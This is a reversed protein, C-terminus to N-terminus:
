ILQLPVKLITKELVAIELSSEVSIELGRFLESVNFDWLPYIQEEIVEDFIEQKSSLLLVVFHSDFSEFCPLYIITLHNSVIINEPFIIQRLNKLIDPNSNRNKEDEVFWSQLDPIPVDNFLSPDELCVKRYRLAQVQQAISVNLATADVCLRTLQELREPTVYLPLESGFIDSLSELSERNMSLFYDIQRKHLDPTRVPLRVRRLCQHIEDEAMSSFTRADLFRDIIVRNGRHEELDKCEVHGHLNLLMVDMPVSSESNGVKVSMNARPVTFLQWTESAVAVVGKSSFSFQLELSQGPLITGKAQSCFFNTMKQRTLATIRPSDSKNTLIHCTESGFTRGARNAAEISDLLYMPRWQFEVAVNGMNTFNVAKTIEEGFVANFVVEQPCNLEISAQRVVTPEELSGQLSALGALRSSAQSAESLQELQSFFETASEEAWQFLGTSRIILEDADEQDITPRGLARLSPALKKQMTLLSETLDFPKSKPAGLRMAM